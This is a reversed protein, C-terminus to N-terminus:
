HQKALAHSGPDPCGGGAMVLHIQCVSDTHSDCDCAECVPCVKTMGETIFPSKCFVCIM